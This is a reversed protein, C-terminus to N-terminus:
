WRLERMTILLAFLPCAFCETKKSRQDFVFLHRRKAGDDKQKQDAIYEFICALYIFSKNLRRFVLILSIKVIKQWFILLSM